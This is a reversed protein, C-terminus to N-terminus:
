DNKLYQGGDAATEEKLRLMFKHAQKVQLWQKEVLARTAGSIDLNVVREFAAQAADEGTECAAVIAHAGGGSLGSKLDIWGRHVAATLTGSKVPTGGLRVVEAELERVFGARQDAYDGFITRLESNNVDAAATRYGSEGDRSAEILGNLHDVTEPATLANTM